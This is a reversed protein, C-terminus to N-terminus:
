WFSKVEKDKIIQDPQNCLQEIYSRYVTGIAKGNLYAAYANGSKRFTLTDAKRSKSYTYKITLKPTGGANVNAEEYKLMSANDFFTQFYGQDLEKGKYKAVTETSETEEGKDDTTKSVTTKIDFDTTKGDATVSMKSLGSLNANLVYKSTLKERSTKVWPISASAIKYVINGETEMLFCKGKSDPKSAILDVIIDPYVAKIHAKPSSLGLKKLQESDPNVAEVSEAYLGRIAGTVQSAENDDAFKGDDLVYTNQICDKEKNQSISIDNLKLSKFEGSSEDSASNNITLSILDTIKFSFPKVADKECLYVEKGSGFMVYTGLNQPADNGIKFTATTGDSFYVKAEAKPSDLGYDALHDSADADSVSKFELNSCANAVEDPAGTQLELTEFGVITYETEGTEETTEGTKPDTEKTKTKKTNANITLNGGSNKLEMKTIDAPVKSFFSGSGNVKIKGNKDTKVEAQWEKNSNVGTKVSTGDSLKDTIENNQPLFILLCVVGGLVLAAILSIILAKAGSKKKKAPKASSTPTEFKDLLNDTENEIIIEPEKNEM